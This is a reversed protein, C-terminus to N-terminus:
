ASGPQNHESRDLPEIGGAEGNRSADLSLTGKQKRKHSIATNYAIRYLWTFFQADGKFSALSQYANIFTEQVVDQADEINGLLRYVTNFLREEHRRVLEAFALPDRKHLCRAILRQDDNGVTELGQVSEVSGFNGFAQRRRAARGARGITLSSM